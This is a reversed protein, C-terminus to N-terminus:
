DKTYRRFMTPTVGVYYKFTRTFHAQDAFGSDVAVEALSFASSTAIYHCAYRIRRQRLYEGLTAGYARAFSAALHEPDVGVMQAIDVLTLPRAFHEDIIGKARKLWVPPPWVQRRAQRSLLGFLANALGDMVAPSDPEFNVYERYLKYAFVISQDPDMVVPARLGKRLCRAQEPIVDIMFHRGPEEHHEQHPINEPLYLVSSPKRTVTKYKGMTEVYRGTLVVCFHPTEHEHSPLREGVDYASETFRFAGVAITRGTKGYYTGSPRREVM